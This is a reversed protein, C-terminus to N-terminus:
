VLWARLVAPSFWWVVLTLGGALLAGVVIVLVAESLMLMYVRSHAAGLQVLFQREAQRQRYSLLLVLGVLLLSCLGVLTLATLALKKLRVVTALLEGMVVGPEIMQLTSDPKRYRGLLRTAAKEDTPVVVIASIPFTAEDGHFHFSDINDDTVENYPAMQGPQLKTVNDHGHGLGAIVWTTRVDCFIAEDDPTGTAALVGTVRMNLPHVGAVDFADVPRSLVRSGSHLGRQKAVKAGVVCDGLRTFHNGEIITLKRFRLYDLSTGVIPDDQSRYRLMLPIPLGLKSEELQDVEGYPMAPMAVNRFYLSGLTLELPSGKAGLLCPTANARATLEAEGQGALVLLGAPLFLTVAVVLVLLLTKFRHHLLYRWALYLTHM